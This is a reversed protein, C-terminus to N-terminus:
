KRPSRFWASAAPYPDGRVPMPPCGYPTDHSTEERVLITKQDTHPGDTAELHALRQRFQELTDLLSINETLYLNPLSLIVLDGYGATTGSLNITVTNATGTGPISIGLNMALMAGGNTVFSSVSPSGFSGFMNNDVVNAGVSFTPAAGNAVGQYITYLVLFDGVYPLTFTTATTVVPLTSGGAKVLGAGLPAAATVSNAVTNGHYYLVDGSTAEPLRPKHLLVSYDVWLEGITAAAQMGVTAIQFNALDYLHQDQNLPVAQTRIFLKTLPTRAPTIDLGHVQSLSPKESIAGTTVEMQVKSTFNPECCNYNAATVVTGLATNTSNLANASTSKFNYEIHEFEYEEFNGALLSLFPFSAQLGPNVFYSALNFATSGSIDGLYERYQFRVSGAGLSQMVARNKRRRSLGFFNGITNGISETIGGLGPM